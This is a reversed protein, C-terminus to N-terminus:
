SCVIPVVAQEIDKPAGANLDYPAMGGDKEGLGNRDFFRRLEASGLAFNLNQPAAGTTEEIYSDSLRAVVVGTVAGANDILPGGSNGPQVPATFSVFRADDDMGALASVNGSTLHLTTSTLAYYPFGIAHVSQGLRAGDADALRLWTSASKPAALAAVDLEPDLALLDLEGGDALTIRECEEVVHMATILLREGVYFGTGTALVEEDHPTRSLTEPAAFGSQGFDAYFDDSMAILNSIQGDQPLSWPVPPGLRLTASILNMATEADPGAILNLTSWRGDLRDSRTHFRRGDALVGSTLLLDPGRVAYAEAVTAAEREAHWDRAAAADMRRTQLSLDQEQHSWDRAGNRVATQEVMALPLALSVGAEGLDIFEWGQEDVLRLFDTLLIAAYANIPADDFHRWGFSELARQSAPGWLGDIPARYEGAAALATQVLRTEGPTMGAGEFEEFLVDFPDTAASVSQLTVFVCFLAGAFAVFKRFM